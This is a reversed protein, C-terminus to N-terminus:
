ISVEEAELLEKQDDLIKSQFRSMPVNQTLCWIMKNIRVLEDELKQNARRRSSHQPDWKRYVKRLAERAASIASRIEM